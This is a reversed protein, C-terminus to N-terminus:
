RPRPAQTQTPAFTRAHAIARGIGALLDRKDADDVLEYDERSSRGKEEDALLRPFWSDHQVWQSMEKTRYFPGALLFKDVAAAVDVTQEDNEMRTIENYVSDLYVSVEIQLATEEGLQLLLFQACEPTEPDIKREGATFAVDVDAAAISATIFESLEGVVHDFRAQIAEAQSMRETMVDAPSVNFFKSTLSM